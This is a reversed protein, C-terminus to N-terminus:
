GNALSVMWALLFAEDRWSDYRGSSGGHGAGLDTRLVFDGDPVTERLRAIWKLPERLLVRTDHRSATALIAPYRQPEVNEYPSYAKITAYAEPSELPNGWEEWEPVTLPLAPDLLTTLPDVFPLQAVVGAVCDPALNAVAAVLLGGASAGRAILRERRTWGQAELHRACAIFDTFTNRKAQLKGQAYWQRGLEGGGRVHATAYVFGRDLLSLRPISFRPDLCAEYAGYGYLVAPASGDRPTGRRCVISIPVRTGDDAVAWERHQEYDDPRFGQRVPTQKRLVLQRGTLHYDYLSEPTVLSIYRVRVTETAYELNHDLSVTYVPEPFAIDHPDGNGAPLVRLATLGETRLSVVVGPQFAAVALLRVGPSPRMLEQWKGPEAMPAWALAFDEAGDNHLIVLRDRDADHDVMYEVGESRGRVLRPPETARHSDILYVEGSTTSRIEVVIFDESRTMAMGLAFREDPEALVLVDQEAPTGVAHRWLQGPRWADDAKAYFLMSGDYSWASGYFAGPIEDPLVEGTRLDKIRLTFREDGVVDVSYALLNGDPSVDLAGLSFYDADKAEADGDLLIEEDADEADAKRCHIEYQGGEVTRRYYWYGNKRVPLSLDAEQTRARIEEFIQTRLAEQAETRAQAYANEATVYAMTDPDDADAMWAYEDIIVDGHVERRIPLKKATPPQVTVM